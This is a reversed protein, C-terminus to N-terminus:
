TRPATNWWGRVLDKARLCRAFQQNSLFPKSGNRCLNDNADIEKLLVLFDLSPLNGLRYWREIAIAIAGAGYSYGLGNSGLRWIIEFLM